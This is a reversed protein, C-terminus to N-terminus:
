LRLITKSEAHDRSGLTAIFVISYTNACLETILAGAATRDGQGYSECRLNVAARYVQVVYWPGYSTARKGDVTEPRQQLIHFPDEM